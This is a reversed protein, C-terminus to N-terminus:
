QTARPVDSDPELQHWWHTCGGVCDQQRRRADANGLVTVFLPFARHLEPEPLNAVKALQVALHPKALLVAPTATPKVGSAGLSASVDEPQARAQTIYTALERLVSRKDPEDFGNFWAAGDSLPKLGQALQNLFVERESM